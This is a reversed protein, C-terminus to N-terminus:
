VVKYSNTQALFMKERKDMISKVKEELAEVNIRSKNSYLHQRPTNLLTIARTALLEKEIFSHCKGQLGEVLLLTKGVATDFIHQHGGDM